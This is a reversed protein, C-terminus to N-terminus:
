VHKFTRITDHGRHADHVDYQRTAEGRRLAIDRGEGANLGSFVVDRDNQTSIMSAPGTSGYYVSDRISNFDSRHRRPPASFMRNIRMNLVEL